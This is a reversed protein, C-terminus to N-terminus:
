RSRMYEAPRAFIYTWVQGDTESGLTEDAHRQSGSVLHLLLTNQMERSDIVGCRHGHLKGDVTVHRYSQSGTQFSTFVAGNKPM